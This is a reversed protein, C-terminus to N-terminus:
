GIGCTVLCVNYVWLRNVWSKDSIFGLVIRGITNAVGIISLLYSAVESPMKLEKIQDAMCFYPIYFGLSTALNSVAFLMFIPDKLLSFSLMELVDSTICGCYVDDSDTLEQVYFQISNFDFDRM